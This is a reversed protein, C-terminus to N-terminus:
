PKGPTEMRISEIRDGERLALVVDLGEIVKGFAAYGLGDQSKDRDLFPAPALTIYFQSSASDPNNTRAMALVGPEAHSFRSTTELPITHGAGGTGDGRPCGGQIVFGPVYRHFSLGDYFEASVLNIFNATTIPANQEDLVIRITGRNTELVANRDPL